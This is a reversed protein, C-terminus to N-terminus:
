ITLCKKGQGPGMQVYLKGNEVWHRKFAPSDMKSQVAGWSRLFPEFYERTFPTFNALSNAMMLLKWFAPRAQPDLTITGQSIEKRFDRLSRLYAKKQHKSPEIPTPQHMEIVDTRLIELKRTFTEFGSLLM